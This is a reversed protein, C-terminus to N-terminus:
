KKVASVILFMPRRLEDQMGPVNELMTKEPEPEVLATIEFGNSILDSIYTTLTKHYKVVQEGLFTTTRNGQSFYNDVPWHLRKGQEDVYWDQGGQATFIPHEVSFIFSGGTTLCQYVKSCINDFSELYHFALSSIVVDLSEPEFIFDEIALCKYEILPSNNIEKAKNLMKESLDIGIVHAAGQEFAYRCHWGFGCGLDLVRKGHFDPLMKQFAHWEGAGKLGSVSRAMHSYQEFFKENDYKNEKM